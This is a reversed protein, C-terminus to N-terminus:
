HNRMTDASKSTNLALMEAASIVTAGFLSVPPHRFALSNLRGKITTDWHSYPAWAGPYTDTQGLREVAKNENALWRMTAANKHKTMFHRRFSLAVAAMTEDSVLSDDISKWEALARARITAHSSDEARTVPVIQREAVPNVRSTGLYTKSDVPYYHWPHTLSGMTYARLEKLFRQALSRGFTAIQEDRREEGLLMFSTAADAVHNHPLDLGLRRGPFDEPTIYWPQGQHVRIDSDHRHLAAEAAEILENPSMGSSQSKTTSSRLSLAVEILSRVIMGTHVLHSALQQTLRYKGEKLGHLKMPEVLGQIKIAHVASHHSLVDPLYNSSDPLLSARPSTWQRGDKLTARIIATDTDPREITISEATGQLRLPTPGIEGVQTTAATYRDGASWTPGSEGRWDELGLAEDTRNIIHLAWRSAQDLHVTNGTVRWALCAARIYLSLDWAFHGSENSRYVHERDIRQDVIELSHRTIEFYANRVDAVKHSTPGSLDLPLSDHDM